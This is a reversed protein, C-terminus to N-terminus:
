TTAVPVVEGTMVDVVERGAAVLELAREATMFTAAPADPDSGAEVQYGYRLVYRGAGHEAFDSMPWCDCGLRWGWNRSGCAACESTQCVFGIIEGAAVRRKACGSKYAMPEGSEPMPQGALGAQLNTDWRLQEAEMVATNAPSGWDSEPPFTM